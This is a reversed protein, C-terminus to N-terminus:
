GAVMHEQVTHMQAGANVTTGSAIQNLIQPETVGLLHIVDRVSNARVNDDVLYHVASATLDAAPIPRDGYDLENRFKVLLGPADTPIVNGGYRFKHQSCWTAPDDVGAGQTSYANDWRQLVRLLVGGTRMLEATHEGTGTVAKDVATVGHLQRIDPLVIRQGERTAEYPISFYECVVKFTGTVTPANSAWIDGSAPTEIEVTLENDETQAFVAGILSEDFSLPVEWILKPTTNAGGGTPLTFVAERDFFFGARRVRMLSRLDLGDCYFLNSIGNAAIKLRQILNWPYPTRVTPTMAGPALTLEAIVYVKSVIGVKDIKFNLKAQYGPWAQTPYSKVNRSTLVAFRVPDIAYSGPAPLNRTYVAGAGIAGGRHVPILLERGDRTYVLARGTALLELEGPDPRRDTLDAIVDRRRPAHAALVPSTRVAELVPNM